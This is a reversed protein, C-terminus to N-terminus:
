CSSMILLSAFCSGDADSSPSWAKGSGDACMGGGDEAVRTDLLEYHHCHFCPVNDKEKKTGNTQMKM